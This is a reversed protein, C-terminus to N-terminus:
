AKSHSSDDGQRESFYKSNFITESDHSKNKYPLLRNLAGQRRQCGCDQLGLIKKAFWSSFKDLGFFHTFKAVTDGFGRSSIKNKM